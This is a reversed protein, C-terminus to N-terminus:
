ILLHIQIMKIVHILITYRSNVFISFCVIMIIIGILELIIADEPSFGCGRSNESGWTIRSM